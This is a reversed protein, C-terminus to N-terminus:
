QKSATCVYMTRLPIASCLARIETHSSAAASSRNTWPHFNFSLFIGLSPVNRMDFPSLQGSSSWEGLCGGKSSRTGQRSRAPQSAQSPVIGELGPLAENLLSRMGAGRKKENM